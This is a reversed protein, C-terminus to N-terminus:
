CLHWIAKIAAALIFAMFLSNAIIELQKDEVCETSSNSAISVLGPKKKYCKENKISKNRRQSTAIQEEQM